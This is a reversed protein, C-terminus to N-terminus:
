DPCDNATNQADQANQIVIPNGTNNVITTDTVYDASVMLGEVYLSEGPMINYSNENWLAECDFLPPPATIGLCSSLSLAFILILVKMIM